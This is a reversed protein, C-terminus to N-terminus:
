SKVIRSQGHAQQVARALGASGLNYRLGRQIADALSLKGSFPIAASSTSGTYPGQVQVVPNLTNVSTTTGPVSSQTATVSGTGTKGSLPLPNATAGQSSGGSGGLQASAWSPLLLITATLSVLIASRLHIMQRVKRTLRM